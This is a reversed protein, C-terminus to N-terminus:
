RGFQQIAGWVTYYQSDPVGIIWLWDIFSLGVLGLLVFMFMNGLLRIM